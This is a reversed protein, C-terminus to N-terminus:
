KAAAERQLGFLPAIARRAAALMRGLDDERLIDREATAQIEVIGGATDLALTLDVASRSDEEYNMDVLVEGDLLGVNLAAVQRRLAPRVIKGAREREAIARTAAIWCGNVGATRTGGDAELVDCDLRLTAGPFAALDFSARISRGIIRQIEQTRGSLKGSRERSHRPVTAGPLLDYEATIWGQDSGVLFAPVGEDFVATCLVKTRGAVYLVSGPIRELYPTEVRHPRLADAPQDRYGTTVARITRSRAISKGMRSRVIGM